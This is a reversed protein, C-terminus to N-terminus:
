VSLEALSQITVTPEIGWPDFIAQPNRKVWATKMGANAAGIIDFPNSSVLWASDAPAETQALFHHYLAPNPKFTQLDDASILDIFYQRLGAETLLTDVAARTGNSFAFLRYGSDALATLGTHADAFAPLHNYTQLLAAKQTASLTVGYATCTHELAQATCVAFNEYYQMLGRRFTYELQKDRWTQSFAAAHDGAHEGGLYETLATIVGHTDILTGYVDFALTVPKM